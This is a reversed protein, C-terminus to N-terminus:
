STPLHLCLRSSWPVCSLTPSEWGSVNRSTLSVRSSRKQSKESVKQQKNGWQRQCLSMQFPSTSVERTTWPSPSQMGSAPPGPKIGSRSTPDWTACGLTWMGCCFVGRAAVLVWHLWINIFMAIVKYVNSAVAWLISLCSYFTKNRTSIKSTDHNGSNAKESINLDVNHM